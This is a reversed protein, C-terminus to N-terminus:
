QRLRTKFDEIVPWSLDPYFQHGDDGELLRIHGVAGAERYIKEAITFGRRVGSIDALYDQKGAVILLHRPAILRALDPMDAIQLLGPVYGCACHPYRLWSDAYTCFSCSVIAMKIRDDMAAAFYTTTGGSSNGICALRSLDVDDLTELFDIALSVDRARRGIMSKGRLSMNLSLHNCSLSDVAQEGFGYQELALAAWGHSIAQLALDRGGAILQSDRENRIEGVSIYMGPAHGQHCIMVPYPPKIRKPTLWIAPIADGCEDFISVRYRTYGDSEAQLTKTINSPSVPEHHYRIVEGVQDRTFSRLHHNSQGMSHDRCASIIFLLSLALVCSGLTRM